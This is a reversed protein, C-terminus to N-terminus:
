YLFLNISHPAVTRPRGRGFTRLFMVLINKTYYLSNYSAKAKLRLYVHYPFVVRLYSSRAGFSHSFSSRSLIIIFTSSSVSRYPFLSSLGQYSAKHNATFTLSIFTIKDPNRGTGIFLHVTVGYQERLMTISRADSANEGELL